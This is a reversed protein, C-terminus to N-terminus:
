SGQTHYTARLRTDVHLIAAPNVAPDLHLTQDAGRWMFHEGSLLERAAFTADPAIGLDALPLHLRVDAAHFPDLNVAILLTDEGSAKAYFIVNDHDAPLFRVNRWDHLAAHDRRIRNLAAVDAKINGPANWDRVRIEYKESDAYEERDPLAANECLEFGSYIGYLSSLTAALVLRIRFAPRGGTQLYPPLIDPTNAFFNPRFFEAPEGHALEDLYGTLEAKFNRWTFYTYSQSFGLKALEHM